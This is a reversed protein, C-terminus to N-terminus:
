IKLLTLLWPFFLFLVKKKVWETMFKFFHYSLFIFTKGKESEFVCVWHTSMVIFIIVPHQVNAHLIM